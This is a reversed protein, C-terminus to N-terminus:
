NFSKETKVIFQQKINYTTHKIFQIINYQTNYQITNQLTNVINDVTRSVIVFLLFTIKKRNVM